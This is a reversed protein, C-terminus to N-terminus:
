SVMLCAQDEDYSTTLDFYVWRWENFYLQSWGIDSLGNAMEALMGHFGPYLQPERIVYDFNLHEALAKFLTVESGHYRQTGDLSFNLYSKITMVAAKIVKNRQSIVSHHGINHLVM